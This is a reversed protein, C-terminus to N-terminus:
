FVKKKVLMKKRKKDYVNTKIEVTETPKKKEDEKGTTNGNGSFAASGQSVASAIGKGVANVLAGRGPIGRGGSRGGRGRGRGRGRGKGSSNARAANENDAESRPRTSGMSGGCVNGYMIVGPPM